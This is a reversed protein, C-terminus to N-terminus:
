KYMKKTIFNTLIITSIIIIGMRPNTKYKLSNKYKM